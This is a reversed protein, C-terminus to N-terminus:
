HNAQVVVSIAAISPLRSGAHQEGAGLFEVDIERAAVHDSVASVVHLGADSRAAPGDEDIAGVALRRRGMVVVLNRRCVFRQCDYLALAFMFLTSSKVTLIKAAPASLAPLNSIYAFGKTLPRVVLGVKIRLAPM